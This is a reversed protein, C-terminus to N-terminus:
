LCQAEEMHNAYNHSPVAVGLVLDNSMSIIIDKTAEM